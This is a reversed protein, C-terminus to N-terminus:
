LEKRITQGLVILFGIIALIFGGSLCGGVLMPLWVFQRTVLPAATTPVPADIYQNLTHAIDESRGSTILPASFYALPITEDDTILLVQSLGDAEGVDAAQLNTITQQNIVVLGLMRRTLTCNVQRAEVYTCTLSNVPFWYLIAFGFLGLTVFIFRGFWDSM